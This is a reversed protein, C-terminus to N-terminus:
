ARGLVNMAQSYVSQVLYARVETNKATTPIGIDDMIWDAAHVAEHVVTSNDADPSVYMAFWSVGDDNEAKYFAGHSPRCDVEGCGMDFLFGEASKATTFVNIQVKFIDLWVEGIPRNKKRPKTM